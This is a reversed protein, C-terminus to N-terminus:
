DCFIEFGRLHIYQSVNRVSIEVSLHIYQSGKCVSIEVSLHEKLNDQSMCYFLFNHKFCRKEM